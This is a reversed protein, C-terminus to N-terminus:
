VKCKDRKIKFYSNVLDDVIEQKFNNLMIITDGIEKIVALPPFPMERLETSSVNINGNFTRFYTDFLSSNLLASLGIIENRDLFGNPRYIYNLHNEVGIVDSDVSNAFYPTAILRSKDDKASFRRLFIYNKNPILLSKSQDCVQIYQEKNKKIVPWTLNMKSTNIMLYLPAYLLGNDPKTVIYKKARFSVVPGTSIQINYINLNGKWSRFLKVTESEESSIPLHLIKQQSDRDYLEDFYYTHAYRHELDDTGNSSSIVVKNASVISKVKTAHIIINEQLVADRKFANKRSEFIHVGNLQMISFFRDRFARFYLGSTFSRPTIFIFQGNEKLLNAATYMFLSYINPQGYIITDSATVRGDTKQIKFYPPNSIIFDHYEIHRNQNELTDSNALIFDNNNLKFTFQVNRKKLWKKLYELALETYPILDNDIEYALLEIESPHGDLNFFSEILSCSLIATGCGPDLIRVKSENCRGLSAMFKAISSPTFFQGLEKKHISSVCLSYQVGLRDSYSSPLENRLPLIENNQIM